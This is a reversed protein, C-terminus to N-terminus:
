GREGLGIPGLGLLDGNEIPQHALAELVLLGGLGRAYTADLRAKIEDEYAWVPTLLGSLRTINDALHAVRGILGREEELLALREADSVAWFEAQYEGTSM